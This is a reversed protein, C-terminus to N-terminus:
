KRVAAAVSNEFSGCAQCAHLWQRLFDLLEDPPILWLNAATPRLQPRVLVTLGCGDMAHFAREDTTDDGLYAAPTGPGMEELLARVVKGKDAGRPRIELGGDFELLDLVGDAAIPRWGLLVRDRIDEGGWKNLGRWHVAIAGTKFEAVKRLRQYTLWGEADALSQLTAEDLRPTEVSGDDRLRQLGHVGWVEPCPHINLLKPIDKADRGSIVAVRTKGNRVIEQLISAIGPYPYAQDRESRFPALTGDYDLLLMSRLSRRVARLLSDVQQQAGERLM